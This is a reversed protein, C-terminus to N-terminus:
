QKVLEKIEKLSKKRMENMAQTTQEITWGQGLKKMGWPILYDNKKGAERKHTIM